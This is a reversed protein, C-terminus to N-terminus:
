RPYVLGRRVEMRFSGGVFFILNCATPQALNDITDREISPLPQEYGEILGSAPVHHEGQPRGGGTTSALSSKREEDSMVGGINPFQIGKAKLIPMLDGVVERRLQSKLEEV